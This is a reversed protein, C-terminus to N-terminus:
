AWFFIMLKRKILATLALFVENWFVPNLSFHEFSNMSLDNITKKPSTTKLYRLILKALSLLIKRLVDTFRQFSISEKPWKNIILSLPHSLCLYRMHSFHMIRLIISVHHMITVFSSWTTVSLFVSIPSKLNCGDLGSTKLKIEDVFNGEQNLLSLSLCPYQWHTIWGVRVSSLFFIYCRISLVPNWSLKSCFFLSRYGSVSSSDM